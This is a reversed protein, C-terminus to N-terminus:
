DLVNFSFKVESKVSNIIMCNNKTKELLNLAREKQTPGTLTFSLEVRSMWPAKEMGKEVYLVGEGNIERFELKSKEAVFKFTALFCNLLSLVYLDEPSYTGGLGEFEPPIALQIPTSPRLEDLSNTWSTKVGSTAHANVKFIKSDNIM